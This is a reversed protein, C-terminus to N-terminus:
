PLDDQLTRSAKFSLKMRTADPRPATPRPTFTGVGPLHVAKGARVSMVLGDIVAQVVRTSQATSLATRDQILRALAAKGV